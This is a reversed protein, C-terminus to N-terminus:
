QTIHQMVITRITRQIAPDQVSRSRNGQSPRINIMSDFELFDDEGWMDPYLNIGWVDQQRSGQELLVKELDAHMEADLALLGKEIDVVGKVMEGLRHKYDHLQALPITDKVIIMHGLTYRM